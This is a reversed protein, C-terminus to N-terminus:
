LVKLNYCDAEEFPEHPLDPYIIMEQSKSPQKTVTPKIEHSVILPFSISQLETLLRKLSKSIDSM